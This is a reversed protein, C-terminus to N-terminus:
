ASAQTEQRRIRTGSGATSSRGGAGAIGVGPGKGNRRDGVLGDAWDAHRSSTRRATELSAFFM